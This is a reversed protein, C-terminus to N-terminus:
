ESDEQKITFKDNEWYVTSYECDEEYKYTGCPGDSDSVYTSLWDLFHQIENDYNKLCTEVKLWWGGPYCERLSSDPKFIGDSRLLFGPYRPTRFFPHDPANGINVRSDLLGPLFQKLEQIKDTDISIDISLQTYMGM